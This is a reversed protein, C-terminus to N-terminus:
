IIYIVYLICKTYECCQVVVVETQTRLIKIVGFSFRIRGLLGEGMEGGSEGSAVSIQKRDRRKVQESQEHLHFRIIHSRKHITDKM